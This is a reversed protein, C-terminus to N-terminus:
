WPKKGWYIVAVDSMQIGCDNDGAMERELHGTPWKNSALKDTLWSVQRGCGVSVWKSLIVRV